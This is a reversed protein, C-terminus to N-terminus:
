SSRHVSLGTRLHGHFDLTYATPFVSEMSVESVKYRHGDSLYLKNSILPYRQTNYTNAMYMAPIVVYAAFIFGIFVNLTTPWPTSLPSGLIASITAWDLSISMFGL